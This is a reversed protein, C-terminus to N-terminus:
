WLFTNPILMEIQSYKRDTRVGARSRVNGGDKFGSESLFTTYTSFSLFMTNETPFLTCATSSIPWQHPLFTQFTSSPHNKTFNAPYSALNSRHTGPSTSRQSIRGAVVFFTSPLAKYRETRNYEEQATHPSPSHTYKTNISTKQFMILHYWGFLCVKRREVSQSHTTRDDIQSAISHRAIATCTYRHVHNQQQRPGNETEQESYAWVISLWDCALNSFYGARHNALCLRLKSQALSLFCARTKLTLSSIWYLSAMKGAYPIGNHLYSSRVVSKDGCHSKRYQHSPM